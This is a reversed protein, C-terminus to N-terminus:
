SLKLTHRSLIDTLTLKRIKVRPDFMNSLIESAKRKRSKSEAKDVETDKSTEKTIMAEVKFYPIRHVNSIHKKLGIRLDFYKDCMQCQYEPEKSEQVNELMPTVDLDNNQVTEDDKINKHVQKIHAKLNWKNSYHKGCHICQNEDPNELPKELTEDVKGHMRNVHVKLGFSTDFTKDCTDCSFEITATENPDPIESILESIFNECQSRPVNHVQDLHKIVQDNYKLILKCKLCQYSIKAAIIATKTENSSTNLSEDNKDNM